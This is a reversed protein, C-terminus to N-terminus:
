VDIGERSDRDENPHTVVSLHMWNVWELTRTPVFLDPQFRASYELERVLTVTHALDQVDDVDAVTNLYAVPIGFEQAKERYADLAPRGTEAYYVGKHNM